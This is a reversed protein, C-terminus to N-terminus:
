DTNKGAQERLADQIAARALIEILGDMAEAKRREAEVDRERRLFREYTDDPYRERLQAALDDIGKAEIVASEDQLQLVQEDPLRTENKKATLHIRQMAGLALIRVSGDRRDRLEVWYRYIRQSESLSM